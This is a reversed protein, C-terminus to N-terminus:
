LPLPGVPSSGDIFAVPSDPAPQEYDTRGHTNGDSGRATFRQLDQAEVAWRAGDPSLVTTHGEVKVPM